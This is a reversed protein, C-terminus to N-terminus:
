RFARRLLPPTILTTALVTVVILTYLRGDLLGLSLGVGAVILGVEGRSIMGVGVRQAERTSMGGLRAGLGSGAYKSLAATLILVLALILSGSDLHRVDAQLGVGVLYIPVFFAYNMAQLPQRIEDRWRTRSLGVGALYAGTIAAMGGLFESGWAFILAAAIVLALLGQSVPLRSAADALLPMLYYGAVAAVALVLVLRLITVAMEGEGGTVGLFVSLTLIVIVDDVV